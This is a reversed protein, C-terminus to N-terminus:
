NEKKVDAASKGAPAKKAEAEAAKVAEPDYDRYTSVGPADNNEAM